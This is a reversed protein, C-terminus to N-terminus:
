YGALLGLRRGVDIARRFLLLGLPLTFVAMAALVVVATGPAIPDDITTPPLILGRVASTVYTHPFLWSLPRILAPLSDIPFYVGGLFRAALTYVVLVPDSRKTLVRVSSGSVSVGLVATAGLLVIAAAPLMGPGVVLRAGMPVAAVLIVIATLGRALLEFLVMGVPIFAVPVPEVLYTEFRGTAMEQNLRAGLGSASADLVEACVLGVVVFGLYDGSGSDVLSSLVAFVALAGLLNLRALVFAIPYAVAELWGLRLFAALSDGLAALRSPRNM